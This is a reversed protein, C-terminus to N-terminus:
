SCNLIHFKAQMKHAMGPLCFCGMSNYIMGITERNMSTILFVGLFVDRVM